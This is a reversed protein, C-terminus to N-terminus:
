IDSKQIRRIRAKTRVEGILHSTEQCMKDCITNRILFLVLKSVFHICTELPTMISTRKIQDSGM